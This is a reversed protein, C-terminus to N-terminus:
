EHQKIRKYDIIFHSSWRFSMLCLTLIQHGVFLCRTTCIKISKIWLLVLQAIKTPLLYIKTLNQRFNFQNSGYKM